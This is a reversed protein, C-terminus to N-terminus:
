STHKEKVLFKGLIYISLIGFIIYDLYNLFIIPTKYTNIIFMNIIIALIVLTIILGKKGVIEKINLTTHSTLTYINIVWVFFLINEINEIFDLIAINKFIMYEPYRYSISLDVGLNGIILVFVVLLFLSSLLYTKCNYKKNFEPLVIFPTMSYLAYELAGLIISLPSNIGIPKFNDLNTSPILSAFAFLIMFIYIINLISIVKMLSYRDRLASYFVLFLFPIMVTLNGTKDLYVSSVLKTIITIGLLLLVSNSLFTTLNNDKNPLKKILINFIMGIFTGLIISIWADTGATNIIKTIGLGIFLSFSLLFLSSNFLLNDIKKM